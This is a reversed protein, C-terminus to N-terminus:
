LFAGRPRYSSLFISLYASLYIPLYISLYTPLYISLYISLYVSLYIYIYTNYIYISLYISLYIFLSLYTKFPMKYLFAQFDCNEHTKATTQSGGRCSSVNKKRLLLDWLYDMVIRPIWPWFFVSGFRIAIDKCQVVSHKQLSQPCFKHIFIKTKCCTKRGFVHHFFVESDWQLLKSM